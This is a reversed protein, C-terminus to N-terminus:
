MGHRAVAAAAAASHYQCQCCVCVNLALLLKLQCSLPLNIKDMFVFMECCMLHEISRQWFRNRMQVIFAVDIHRTMAM